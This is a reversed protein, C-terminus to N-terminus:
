RSDDCSVFRCLMQSIESIDFPKKVYGFAGERDVIDKIHDEQFIGTIFIIKQGPKKKHIERFADIGSLAPMSVDMFVLHYDKGLCIDRAEAGNTAFDVTGVKLSRLLTAFLERIADDDDAVLITLDQLDPSIGTHPMNNESFYTTSHKPLELIFETEKGPTSSFYLKGRHQEIINRSISLGMGTGIINLRGGQKTTFFPNFIDDAISPDIGTGTDHFRIVAKGDTEEVTITITGSGKLKIAHVANLILNLFVQQLLARDVMVQPTDKFKRILVIDDKLLIKEQIKLIEDILETVDCRQKNKIENQSLMSLNRLITGGQETMKEIVGMAKRTSPIDDLNNVTYQVYGRISTLINNFEHTIGSALEGIASLRESLLLKDWLKKHDTINRWLVQHFRQDNILLPTISIEFILDHGRYSAGRLELTAHKEDNRMTALLKEYDEEILLDSFHIDSVFVYPPYEFIDLFSQNMYVVQDESSLTVGDPLNDVLTRYKHETKILMGETKKQRTINIGILLNAEISNHLTIQEGTILLDHQQGEFNFEIEIERQDDQNEIATFLTDLKEPTGTMDHIKRGYLMKKVNQFQTFYQRHLTFYIINGQRTTACIVTPHLKMLANFMINKSLARHITRSLFSEATYILANLPASPYTRVTGTHEDFPIFRPITACEIVGPLGAEVFRKRFRSSVVFDTAFLIHPPMPDMTSIHQLMEMSETITYISIPIIVCCSPKNPIADKSTIISYPVKNKGLFQELTRHLTSETKLFIVKEIAHNHLFDSIM